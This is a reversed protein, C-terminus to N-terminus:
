LPDVYDAPLGLWSKADDYSMFIKRPREPASTVSFYSQLLSYNVHDAVLHAVRGEGFMLKTKQLIDAVMWSKARGLNIHAQRLDHFGNLGPRFWPLGAMEDFWAHWEDAEITGVWKIFFCDASEDFTTRHPM